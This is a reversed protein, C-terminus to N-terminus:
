AGTCHTLSLGGLGQGACVRPAKLLRSPKRPCRSGLARAAIPSFPSLPLALGRPAPLARPGGAQTGAPVSPGCPSGLATRAPLVLPPARGCVSALDGRRPFLFFAYLSESVRALNTQLPERHPRWDGDANLNFFFVIPSIYIYVCVCM